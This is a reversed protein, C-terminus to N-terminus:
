QKARAMKRITGAPSHARLTCTDIPKSNAYLGASQALRKSRLHRSTDSKNIWFGCKM